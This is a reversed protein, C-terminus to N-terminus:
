TALGEATAEWVRVISAPDVLHDDMLLYTVGQEFTVGTIKGSIGTDVPTYLGDAGLALVEYQYEGDLHYEGMIDMGDWNVSHTGAEKSGETLHAVPNGLSDYINVVIAAAETLHYYGGAQTGGAMRLTDDLSMVEKGIFDLINGDSDSDFSGQISELNENVTFLQELSSFQALQASFDAGEMPNLPDQNKLQTVLMTLFADRGLPDEETEVAQTSTQGLIANIGGIDSSASNVQM